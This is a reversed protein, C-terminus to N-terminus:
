YIIINSKIKNIEIVLPQFNHKLLQGNIITLTKTKIKPPARISTPNTKPNHGTPMSTLNPLPLPPNLLSNSPFQLLPYPLPHHRHMTKTSKLLTEKSLFISIRKPPLM